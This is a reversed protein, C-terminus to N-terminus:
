HEVPTTTSWYKEVEQAFGERDIQGALYKQM